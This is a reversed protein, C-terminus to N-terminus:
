SKISFIFSKIIYKGLINKSRKVIRVILILLYLVSTIISMLIIYMCFTDFLLFLFTNTTPCSEIRDFSIYILTINFFYVYWINTKSKTDVWKFKTRINQSQVVTTCKLTTNQLFNNQLEISLKTFYTNSLWEALTERGIKRLCDAVFVFSKDKGTSNNWIMLLSLCPEDSPLDKGTEFPIRFVIFIM